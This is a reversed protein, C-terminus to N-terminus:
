TKEPRWSKEWYESRILLPKSQITKFQRSDDGSKWSKWDRKGLRQPGSRTRWNCNTDGDDEHICCTEECEKLAKWMLTSQRDKVLVQNVPLKRLKRNDTHDRNEEMEVEPLKNELGNHVTGQLDIIVPILTAKM